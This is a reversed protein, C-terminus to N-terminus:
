DVNFKDGVKLNNKESFEANVELVYKASFNQGFSEPYTSPAINKEIGVVSFDDSFWIMDIPFNMDKMWFGYNGNQPFIFLMGNYIGLNKRFSLGLEWRCTDDAIEVQIKKGAIQIEKIQNVGCGYSYRENKIKQLLLAAFIDVTFLFVIFILILKRM